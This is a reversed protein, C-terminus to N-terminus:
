TASGSSLRRRKPAAPLYHRTRELLEQMFQLREERTMNALRVQMADKEEKAPAPKGFARDLIANSAVVAVREDASDILEILRSVAKPAATRALKMAAGYEGSHGAPNGSQGPKWMRSRM